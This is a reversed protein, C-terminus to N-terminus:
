GLLSVTEAALAAMRAHMAATPHLGDLYLEPREPDFLTDFDAVPLGYLAALHRLWAAYDRLGANVRDFDTWGQWPPAMAVPCLPIPVGVLPRLGAALCQHVLAFSNERARADDGSAILDNTGGLLLVADPRHALVDRQLRALMGGTTDGPLGANDVRWGSRQALLAPWACRRPLGYGSTLSDGLCILHM